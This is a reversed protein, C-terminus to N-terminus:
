VYAKARASVPLTEEPLPAHPSQCHIAAPRPRASAPGPRHRFPMRAFSLTEIACLVVLRTAAMTASVASSHPALAKAAFALALPEAPSTSCAIFRTYGANTRM